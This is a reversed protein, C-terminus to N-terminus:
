GSGRVISFCGWVSSYKCLPELKWMSTKMSRTSRNIMTECCVREKVHSVSLPIFFGEVTRLEEYSSPGLVVTLLLHLYFRESDLPSCNYLKGIKGRNGQRCKGLGIGKIGCLAPLFIWLYEPAHPNQAYYQFFAILKSWTKEIRRLLEENDVEEDFDIPQQNPLQVAM